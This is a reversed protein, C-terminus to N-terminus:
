PRVVLSELDKMFRPLIVDKDLYEEAYRRAIMNPQRTDQELMYELGEIFAADDEPEVRHAIGPHKECLLGLEADSEATILAHGGVSLISTLKSPLVVNAAGKKQVVLHIDAMALLEPLREYPQLDHFILNHLDLDSALQLLEERHAGQGVIVFHIDKKEEYHKAAALVVELGQKKGLNGSYLIVKDTDSFGWEVRYSEGSVEPKIYDTDVWNPFFLVRSDTMGKQKANDM